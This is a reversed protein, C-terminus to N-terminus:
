SLNGFLAWTNIATKILTAGGYQGSFALAGDLSQITVDGSVPTFTIIGAGTQRLVIQTGIPFAVSNNTPITLTGATVGNSLELCKGDDTLVLTYDNAVYTPTSIVIKALKATTVALDEIMATEVASASITTTNGSSTVDGTLNANTVVTAVNSSNVTIGGTINQNLTSDILNAFQGETPYDGTNFYSKLTASSEVSM